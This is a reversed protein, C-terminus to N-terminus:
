VDRAIDPCPAFSRGPARSVRLSCGYAPGCPSGWPHPSYYGSHVSTYMLIKLGQAVGAHRRATTQHCSRLIRMSSSPLRGRGGVFVLNKRRLKPNGLRIGGLRRDFEFLDSKIPGCFTLRFASSISRTM